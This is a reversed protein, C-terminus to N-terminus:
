ETRQSLSGDPVEYCASLNDFRSIIRAMKETNQQPPSQISAYKFRFQFFSRSHILSEISKRDGYVFFFDPLYPREVITAKGKSDMKPGNVQNNDSTM